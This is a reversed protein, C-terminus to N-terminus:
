QLNRLYRPFGGWGGGRKAQVVGNDVGERVARNGVEDGEYVDGEQYCLM